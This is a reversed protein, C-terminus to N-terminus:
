KIIKQVVARKMLNKQLKAFSNYLMDFIKAISKSLSMKEIIAGLIFAIPEFISLIGDYMQTITLFIFIIGVLYVCFDLAVNIIINQKFCKKLIYSLDSLLGTIIGVCVCNLFVVLEITIM